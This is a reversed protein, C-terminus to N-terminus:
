ARRRPTPNPAPHWRTTVRWTREGFLERLMAIMAVTNKLLVYPLTTLAFIVFWGHLSEKTRWLAAHHTSFSAAPGALLTLVATALLYPHGLWDISRGLLSTAALLAFVQLSLFPFLERWSLLYTWYLKNRLSLKPSRWISLQHRLTVQLWGQAWRMRQNWWPRFRTPALESSIISRDHVLRYGALMARISSDIDETLMQPDMGIRKLASTRWYGNTGGFIATDLALSRGTHAVSYMHEFEIALYRTFLNDRQNRIVCRGQVIDYGQLLWRYASEIADPEPLHDADLLVTMEGEALALAANINEAKSRSGAVRLATFSTSLGALSELAREVPLDELTNYALIIQLRHTPVRLETNLHLVTEAILDRENPLYASVIVTVLPVRPLVDHHSMPAKRRPLAVASEMLMGVATVLYATAVAFHVVTLSTPWWSGALVYILVPLGLFVWAGLLVYLVDTRWATMRTTM